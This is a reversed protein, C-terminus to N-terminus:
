LIVEDGKDMVAGSDLLVEVIERHGNQSALHLSTRGNQVVNLRVLM